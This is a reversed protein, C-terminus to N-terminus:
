QLFGPRRFGVNAPGSWDRRPQANRSANASGSGVTESLFNGGTYFTSEVRGLQNINPAGRRLRWKFICTSSSWVHRCSNRTAAIERERHHEDARVVMGLAM